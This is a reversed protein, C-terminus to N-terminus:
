MCVYSVAFISYQGVQQHCQGVVGVKLAAEGKTKLAFSSLLESLCASGICTAARSFDVAKSFAM